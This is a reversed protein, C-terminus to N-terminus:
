CPTAPALEGATELKSPPYVGYFRKIYNRHWAQPKHPEWGWRALLRESIRWNWVDCVIADSRKVSDRLLDAVRTVQKSLSAIAGEGRSLFGLARRPLTFLTRWM